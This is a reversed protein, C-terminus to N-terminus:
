NEVMEIRAKLLEEFASIVQEPLPELCKVLEEDKLKRQKYARILRLLYSAEEKCMGRVEDALWIALESAERSLGYDMLAEMREQQHM